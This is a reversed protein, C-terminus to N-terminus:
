GLVRRVELTVEGVSENTTVSFGVTNRPRVLETIDLRFPGRAPTTAVIEGNLRVDAQGSLQSCVLWLREGQDLTRPWGFHRSHVTRDGERGVVWAARLRITHIPDSM